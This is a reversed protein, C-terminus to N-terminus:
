NKPKKDDVKYVKSGCKLSLALYSNGMERDWATKPDAAQDV